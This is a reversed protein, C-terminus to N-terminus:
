IEKELYYDANRAYQNNPPAFAYVVVWPKDKCRSDHIFDVQYHWGNNLTKDLLPLLAGDSPVRKSKAIRIGEKLLSRMAKSNLEKM